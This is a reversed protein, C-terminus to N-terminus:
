PARYLSGRQGKVDQRKLKGSKVLEMIVVHVNGGRGQKRWTKVIDSTMAGSKGAAKVTDVISQPGPVDFKKRKRPAKAAPQPKAKPPRGRKAKPKAPAAAKAKPPRGRKRKPKAPQALVPAKAKPPRGRKPKATGSIGLQAFAEDIEEVAKLHAVREAQLKEITRKLDTVAPIAM